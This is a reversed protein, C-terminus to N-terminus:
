QSERGSSRRVVVSSALKLVGTMASSEIPASGVPGMTSSALFRLFCTSLMEM